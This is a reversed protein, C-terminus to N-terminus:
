QYAVEVNFSGSYPGGAVQDATVELTAGVFVGTVGDNPFTQTQTDDPFGKFLHVNMPHEGNLDITIHDPLTVDFDFGAQGTITFFAPGTPSGDDFLTVGGTSQRPFGPVRPILVTGETGSPIFSGFRLDNGKTVTITQIVVAEATAPVSAAQASGSFSSLSILAASILSLGCRFSKTEKFVHLRM